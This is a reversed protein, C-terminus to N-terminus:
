EEDPERVVAPEDHGDQDEEDERDEDEDDDDPDRPPMANTVDPQGSNRDDLSAPELPQDSPDSSSQTPESSVSQRTQIWRQREVFRATETTATAMALLASKIREDSTLQALRACQDASERLEKPEAM